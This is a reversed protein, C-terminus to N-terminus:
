QLMPKAQEEEVCSRCLPFTLKQNCRVPLVPHYLGTPPLIDVLALGFYSHISQDIPQTIIHPHGVPYTCTKNVWPYLSTIDTYRIEEEEGAVAHLAVAGTRGGFFADRPELPPVLDFSKLFRQVAENTELQRDWQCEWIEIVKYGARLLAMRKALTARYLEEVTRDPTAYNRVDRVPYCKTCGHYICGQFEYVTLTVPDYGDVFYSTVATRVTQEGGNRVHKIRDASAGQKPIQSEQFYLWQLARVSQNTNAGRWGRIPEVAITNPTLHHKRWYLNCASPITFCHAMPNFGAQSAFEGQFKQCGQKLLQVDSKCYAILEEKFNFTVNRRVQEAHWQLLKEKKEAMMGDADFFEIDPIRGEYNQHAPINFLHPFFGKKLEKLNFTSAFSALPMPLFCLSDIFKM